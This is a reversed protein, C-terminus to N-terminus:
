DINLEQKIKRLIHCIDGVFYCGENTEVLHDYLIQCEEENLQM